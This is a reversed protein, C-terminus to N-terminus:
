RGGESATGEAEVAADIQEQTIAGSRLGMQRLSPSLKAIEEVTLPARRRDEIRPMRAQRIQRELLRLREIAHKRELVVQAAIKRITPEIENMFQLPEHRARKAATLAVMAPLDDLAEVMVSRWADGQAPAALPAAKLALRRLREDMAESWDKRDALRMPALQAEISAIAAGIAGPGLREALETASSITWAQPNLALWALDHRGPAPGTTTPLAPATAM